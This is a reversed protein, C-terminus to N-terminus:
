RVVNPYTGGLGPFPDLPGQGPTVPPRVGRGFGGGVQRRQNPRNNEFDPPRTFTDPGLQQDAFPDFREQSPGEVNVPPLPGPTPCRFQRSNACGGACALACAALTLATSRPGHM